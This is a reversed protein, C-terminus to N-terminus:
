SLCMCIGLPACFGNACSGNTCDNNTSCSRGTCSPDPTCSCESCFYKVGACEVWGRESPCNSPESDSPCGTCSIQRLECNVTATCARPTLEAPELQFSLDLVTSAPDCKSAEDMGVNQDLADPTDSVGVEMEPDDSQVIRDETRQEAALTAAFVLLAGTIIVGLTRKDKIHQM